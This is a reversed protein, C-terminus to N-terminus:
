INLEYFTEAFGNIPDHRGNRCYMESVWANAQNKRNDDSLAVRDCTYDIEYCDMAEKQGCVDHIYDNVKDSYKLTNEPLERVRKYVKDSDVFYDIVKYVKYWKHNETHATCIVKKGIMDKLESFSLERGILHYQDEELYGCPIEKKPGEIIDFITMQKMFREGHWKECYAYCRCDNCWEIGMLDYLKCNDATKTDWNNVKM